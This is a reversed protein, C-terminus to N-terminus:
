PTVTFTTASSASGGATTIAINGTKAGTPVTAKVQTNSLIAFSTAKVGGFTVATTQALSQGTITVSAGVGGSTPAFSTVQPAIRFRQNSSLTTAGEKVTLTGTKAGTPVVATMFTDSVITFSAPVGGFVVATPKSFGQGFLQITAGVKATSQSPLFRVFPGLGVNLRFAVGEAGAGTGGEETVGYLSGNTHQIMTFPEVGDTGVFQHLKTFTTGALTLQFLNGGGGGFVGGYLNGNTAQVVGALPKIGNATFSFSWVDTVVGAPTM